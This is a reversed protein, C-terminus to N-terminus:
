VNYVPATTDLVAKLDRAAHYYRQVDVSDPRKELILKRREVFSDMYEQYRDDNCLRFVTVRKFQWFQGLVAELEERDKMDKIYHYLVNLSSWKEFFPKIARFYLEYFKEEIENKDKIREVERNDYMPVEFGKNVYFSDYIDEANTREGILSNTALIPVVIQEILLLNIYVLFGSFLRKDDEKKIVYGIRWVSNDKNKSYSFIEYFLEKSVKLRFKDGKLLSEVKDLSIM